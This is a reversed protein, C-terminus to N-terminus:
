KKILILRCSEENFDLYYDVIERRMEMLFYVFLDRIAYVNQYTGSFEIDSAFLVSFNYKNSLRNLKNLLWHLRSKQIESFRSDEFYVDLHQGSKVQVFNRHIISMAELAYMNTLNLGHMFSKNQEYYLLAPREQESLRIGWGLSNRRIRQNNVSMYNQLYKTWGKPLNNNSRFGTIPHWQHYVPIKSLSLWKTKVNLRKLRQNLDVDEVGWICYFEDFGRIENLVERSITQSLGLASFGRTKKQIIKKKFLKEWQNFRKPLAFASIHIELKEQLSRSVEEIFRPSFILDIDSTMVYATTAMKIGINLAQARNWLRGRTNTFIYKAFSYTSILSRLNRSVEVDSGYDVLIVEFNQLSQAKM